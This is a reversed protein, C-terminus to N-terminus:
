LDGVREVGMGIALDEAAEEARPVRDDASRRQQALDTVAADAVGVAVRDGGLGALRGDRDFRAL